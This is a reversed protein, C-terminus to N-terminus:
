PRRRSPVKSMPRSGSRNEEINWSYEVNGVPKGDSDHETYVVKVQGFNLTVNETLRDGEGESGTFVSSVLVNQMEIVVYELPQSGAKRVTLMAEPIRRGNSCYEMLKPSAKDVYKTLTLDQIEVRGAGRPSGTAM